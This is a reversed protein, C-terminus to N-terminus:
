GIISRGKLLIRNNEYDIEHSISEKELIEKLLEMHMTSEFRFQVDSYRNRKGKLPSVLVKDTIM